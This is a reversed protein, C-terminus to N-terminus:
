LLHLPVSSFALLTWTFMRWRSIYGLNRLSPVGVDLWTKRAHAEDVDRRTPAAQLQMCYNSASLLGTSLLNILLHIWRDLKAVTDCDGSYILGVGNQSPFRSIAASTLGLNVCFITSAIIIQLMLARSRRSLWIRMSKKEDNNIQPFWWSLTEREALPEARFTTEAQHIEDTSQEGTQTVKTVSPGENSSLRASDDHDRAVESGRSNDTSSQEM